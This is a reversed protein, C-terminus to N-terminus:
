PCGSANFTAGRSVAVCDVSGSVSNGVLRSHTVTITGGTQIVSNTSGVLASHTIEATGGSNRLGYNNGTSNHGVVKVNHMTLAGSNGVGTAPSSLSIGDAICSSDRLTAESGVGVVLAAGSGRPYEALLTVREGRLTAASTSKLGVVIAGGSVTTSGHKSTYSGGRLTATAGSDVVLAQAGKSVSDGSGLATVNQLVVDTGSGTVCIARNEGSTDGTAQATVDRVLVADTGAPALLAIHTSDDGTNVVTLERVSTNSTLVLTAQSEGGITSSIITAGQGAGHIHIHSTMVVTQTYVGPAVWVLYPNEADADAISNIASQISSYDGGSKAVVVVNEYSGVGGGVNDVDDAFGDPIGVIDDWAVAGAQSAYTSTTAHTASLAFAVSALQQRPSLTEGEVVIELYLNTELTDEDIPDTTGLVVAFFGDSVAVTHPEPGWLRTGDSDSDWLSFQMQYSADPVPDGQDDLLHGQYSMTRPPGGAMPRVRGALALGGLALGALVVLVSLSIALKVLVRKM